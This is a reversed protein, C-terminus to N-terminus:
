FRSGDVLHSALGKIKSKLPRDRIGQGCIAEYIISGDLKARFKFVNRDTQDFTILLLSIRLLGCMLLDASNANDTRAVILASHQKATHHNFLKQYALVKMGNMPMDDKALKVEVVFNQGALKFVYDSRWNRFSSGISVPIGPERIVHRVPLIFELNRDFLTTYDNWPM